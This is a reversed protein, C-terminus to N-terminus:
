LKKHHRINPMHQPPPKPKTPKKSMPPPSTHVKHPRMYKPWRKTKVFSDEESLSDVFENISIIYKDDNGFSELYTDSKLRIPDSWRLDVVYKNGLSGDLEIWCDKTTKIFDPLIKIIQPNLKLESLLSYAEKIYLRMIEKPCLKHDQSLSSKLSLLKNELELIDM